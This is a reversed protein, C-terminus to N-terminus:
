NKELLKEFFEFANIINLYAHRRRRRAPAPRQAQRWRSLPTPGLSVQINWSSESLTYIRSDHYEPIDLSVLERGQIDRSIWPYGLIYPSLVTVGLKFIKMSALLQTGTLRLTSYNELTQIHM